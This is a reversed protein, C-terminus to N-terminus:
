KVEVEPTVSMGPRLAYDGNEQQLNTFDVRVPIRQVVKVYNGTANEPPFLSLRSGTAGGIQTVKGHFKRGGLADVKLTVSQGPKMKALQTEKFNATVWLNTLPIITLVDQGISLNAGVQVNKKNVIGTTPATIHTYGLNLVAQDVKAQAQKVDALASNAKAQQVRVQDPGTKVSQAAQFRSQALKQISQSVAAQYGIVTAEAELVSAQNAADTAVAADYQQKSIVDKEVLPTYREVDLHSKVATAKAAVVRAEAAQAQKRAQEVAASSGTVDSGTTSVSTNVNVGVIPVNVTAQIAAAQSSALNAQAQELAVQYDRPDIEAIPDGVKIQQNDEVYVKIVQGTVRSSVQYLDGDVQADDTDESFTSRWYFIGAGIVLLIIVAIVIFKRGSKKEPADDEEQKHSDAPPQKEGANQKIQVTGSIQATQGDQQQDSQDPM